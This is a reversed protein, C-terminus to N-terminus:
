FSTLYIHNLQLLVFFQDFSKIIQLFTNEHYYLFFSNNIHKRHKRNTSLAKIQIVCDEQEQFFSMDIIRFILDLFVQNQFM